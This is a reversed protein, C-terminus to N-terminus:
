LVYPKTICLYTLNDDCLFKPWQNFKLWTKQFYEKFLQTNETSNFYLCYNSINCFNNGQKVIAIYKTFLLILLLFTSLYDLTCKKKMM